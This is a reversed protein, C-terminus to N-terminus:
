EGREIEPNNIITYFDRTEKSIFKLDGITVDEVKKGIEEFSIERKQLLSEIRTLLEPNDVKEKLMKVSTFDEHGLKDKQELISLVRDYSGEIGKVLSPTVQGNELMYSLNQQMDPIRIIDIGMNAAKQMLEESPHEDGFLAIAKPKIQIFNGEKDFGSMYYISETNSHIQDYTNEGALLSTNEATRFNSKKMLSEQPINYDGFNFKSGVNTHSSFIMLNEPIEDFVYTIANSLGYVYVNYNGETLVSMCIHENDQKAQENLDTNVSQQSVLITFKGQLEKIGDDTKEKLSYGLESNFEKGYESVINSFRNYFNDRTSILTSKRSTLENYNRKSINQAFETIQQEDLSDMFEILEDISKYIEPNINNAKFIKDIDHGRLFFQRINEFEISSFGTLNKVIVDRCGDRGEQIQVQQRNYITEPYRELDELSTIQPITDNSRDNIYEKLLYLKDEEVPIESDLVLSIIERDNLFEQISGSIEAVVHQNKLFNKDRFMRYKDFLDDKSIKSLEKGLTDPFMNYVYQRKMIEVFESKEEGQVITELLKQAKEFHVKSLETIISKWSDKSLINHNKLIINSINEDIIAENNDKDDSKLLFSTVIRKMESDNLISSLIQINSKIDIRELIDQKQKLSFSSDRISFLDLVEKSPNLKGSIVENYLIDQLEEKSEYSLRLFIDSDVINLNNRLIEMVKEEISELYLPHKKVFGIKDRIRDFAKNIKEKSSPNNEILKILSSEARKQIIEEIKDRLKM